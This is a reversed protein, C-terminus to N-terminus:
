DLGLQQKIAASAVQGVVALSVNSTLSEIKTLTKKWISPDTINHTFKHGEWTLDIIYGDGQRINYGNTTIIYNDLALQKLHYEVANLGGYTDFTEPNLEYVSSVSFNKWGDSNNELTILIERILDLNLKMM